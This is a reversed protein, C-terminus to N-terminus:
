VATFGHCLVLGPRTEGRSLTDPIYLVGAIPVAESYFRVPKEM